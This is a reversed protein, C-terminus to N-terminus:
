GQLSLGGGPSEPPNLSAGAAGTTGTAQRGARSIEVAERWGSRLTTLLKSVEDIKQISKEVNAEILTQYMYLYLSSLHGSLEEAKDHNLSCMLEIVIKQVRLLDNHAEYNNKAEMQIKARGLFRISGDYLMLLLQEPSATSIQTELYKKQNAEQNM